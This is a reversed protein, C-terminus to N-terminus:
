KDSNKIAVKITVLNSYIFYIGKHRGNNVGICLLTPHVVHECGLTRRSRSRSEARIWSSVNPWVGVGDSDAM